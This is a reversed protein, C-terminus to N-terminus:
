IGMGLIKRIYLPVARVGPDLARADAGYGARIWEEELNGVGDAPLVVRRARVDVLVGPEVVTEDLEARGGVLGDEADLARHALQEALIQQPLPKHLDM